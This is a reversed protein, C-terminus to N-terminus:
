KKSSNVDQNSITTEFGLTIEDEHNEKPSHPKSEQKSKMHTQIKMLNDNEQELNDVDTDSSEADMDEGSV